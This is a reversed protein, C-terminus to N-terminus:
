RVARGFPHFGPEELGWSVVYRPRVRVFQPVFAPFRPNISEGGTQHPEGDGRIEIAHAAGPAADDILVTVRPNRGADRWAKGTAFDIGGIDIVEEDANYHFTVPIVHPQGDAGVTAFRCMTLRQLYEVEAATFVSM